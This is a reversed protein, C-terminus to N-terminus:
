NLLEANELHKKFKLCTELNKRTCHSHKVFNQFGLETNILTGSNRSFKFVQDFTYELFHIGWWLQIVM